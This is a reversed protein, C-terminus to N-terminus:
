IQYTCENLVMQDLSLSIVHKIVHMEIHETMCMWLLKYENMNIWVWEHENMSIWVWECDNMSMWEDM